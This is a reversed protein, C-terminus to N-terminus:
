VNESPVTTGTHMHICYVSASLCGILIFFAVYIKLVMFFAYVVSLFIIQNGFFSEWLLSVAIHKVPIYILNFHECYDSEFLELRAALHLTSVLMFVYVIELKFINNASSM